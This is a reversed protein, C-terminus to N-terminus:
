LKTQCYRYNNNNYKYIYIIVKISEDQEYLLVRGRLHLVVQVQISREGTSDLYINLLSLFRAKTIGTKVLFHLANKKPEYDFINEQTDVIHMSGSDTDFVVM